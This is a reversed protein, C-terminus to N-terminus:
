FALALIVAVSGLFITARPHLEVWHIAADFAAAIKM